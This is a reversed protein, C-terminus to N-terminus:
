RLTWTSRARALEKGDHNRTVTHSLHDGTGSSRSTVRSGLSCESLFQIDLASLWRQRWHKEDVAEVLWEVYSANTVHLNIDIDSYRVNFNQEVLAIDVPAIAAANVPLVHPTEAHFEAPLVNTLNVPRRTAVDLALWTTLARGVEKGADIIRFDRLAARRAIGSPWTEVDILDGVTIPRDLEFQERVLVWTLGSRNL